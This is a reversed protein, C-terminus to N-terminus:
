LHSEGTASNNIPSQSNRGMRCDAVVGINLVQRLTSLGVSLLLPLGNWTKPLMTVAETASERYSYTALVVKAAHAQAALYPAGLVVVVVPKGSLAANTALELQRSNSVAVVVVDARAALARAQKKLEDRSREPPYAPVVLSTLTPFRRALSEVLSVETSIVAVKRRADLPFLGPKSRLLTVGASAIRGAM